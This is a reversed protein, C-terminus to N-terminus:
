ERLTNFLARAEDGSVVGTEGPKVIKNKVQAMAQQQLQANINNVLTNKAMVELYNSIVLMQFPSVLNGSWTFVTSDPADFEIYLFSKAKIGQQLDEPNPNKNEEM